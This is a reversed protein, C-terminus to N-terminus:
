NRTIMGQSNVTISKSEVGGSITIIGPTNPIGRSQSFVIETQGSIIINPNKDLKEDFQTNRLVYSSGSFLIIKDPQFLVGWPTNQKGIMSYSQAKRLQTIVQDQVTYLTNQLLFRSYFSTSMGGLIMILAVVLLLEILTFGKKQERTTYM